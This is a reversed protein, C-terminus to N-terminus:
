KKRLVRDVAAHLRTEAEPGTDYEIIESAIRRLVPSVTAGRCVAVIIPKDLLVAAGIELCMKADIKEGHLAICISSGKMAPIVRREFDDFFDQTEPELYKHCGSCYKERVDNPNWSTRGCLLCTISAGLDSIRYNM